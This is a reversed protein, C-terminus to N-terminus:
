INIGFRRGIKYTFHKVMMRLQFDHPAQKVLKWNVYVAPDRPIVYKYMHSKLFVKLVDLVEKEDKPCGKDCLTSYTDQVKTLYESSLSKKQFLAHYMLSYCYDEQCPIYVGSDDLKRNKLMSEAWKSPYYNDGVWRVDFRIRKNNWEVIYNDRYRNGHVRKANTLGIFFELNDCLIDIDEHGDGYINENFVDDWNRLILYNCECNLLDFLSKM